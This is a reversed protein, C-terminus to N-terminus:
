CTHSFFLVLRWGVRVLSAAGLSVAFSLLLCLLAGWWIALDLWNQALKIVGLGALIVLLIIRKTTLKSPMIGGQYFNL